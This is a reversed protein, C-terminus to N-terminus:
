GMETCFIHLGDATLVIEFCFIYVILIRGMKLCFTYVILMMCFMHLGDVNVGYLFHTSWEATMGIQFFLIYVM